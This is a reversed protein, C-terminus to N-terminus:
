FKNNEKIMNAIQEVKKHPLLAFGFDLSVRLNIQNFVYGIADLVKGVQTILWGLGMFLWSLLTFVMIFPFKWILNLIEECTAVCLLRNKERENLQKLGRVAKTVRKYRKIIEIM